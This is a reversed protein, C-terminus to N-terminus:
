MGAFGQGFKGPVPSVELSGVPPPGFRTRYFQVASQIENALRTLEDAPRPPAASTAVTPISILPSPTRTPRRPGLNATPDPQQIEPPPQVAARLADDIERNASVEVQIGGQVTVTREYHGLNFA